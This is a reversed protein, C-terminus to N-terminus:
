SELKKKFDRVIGDVYASKLIKIRRKTENVIDEYDYVTVPTGSVVTVSTINATTNARNSVSIRDGTIFGGETVTIYISSSSPKSSVFGKGTNSSNVVVNGVEYLGYSVNSSLLLNANTYNGGGDEYHHIAITNSYKGQIYRSLNESTQPWDFRPDLIENTHLVIWHLQPNNYFKDALIEPTEGDKIDYEDYISLNNKVEDSLVVRTTINTVLQVTARDDQSYYTYPFSKFYM